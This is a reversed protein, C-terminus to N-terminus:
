IFRFLRTWFNSIDSLIAAASTLSYSLRAAWSPDSRIGHRKVEFEELLPRLTLIRFQEGEPTTHITIVEHRFVPRNLAEQLVGFLIWTQLFQAVFTRLLRHGPPDDLGPSMIIGHPEYDMTKMTDLYGSWDKRAREM